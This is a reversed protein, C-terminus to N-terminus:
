RGVLVLSKGSGNTRLEWERNTLNVSKRVFNEPDFKINVIKSIKSPSSILKTFASEYEDLSSETLYKSLLTTSNPNFNIFARLTSNVENVRGREDIIIILEPLSDILEQSNMLSPGPRTTGPVISSTEEM